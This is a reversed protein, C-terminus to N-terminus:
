APEKAPEPFPAREVVKVEFFEDHDMHPPRPYRYLDSREIYFGTGQTRADLDIQTLLREMEERASNSGKLLERTLAALEPGHVQEAARLRGQYTREHEREYAERLTPFDIRLAMARAEDLTWASGLKHSYRDRIYWGHNRGLYEITGRHEGDVRVGIRRHSAVGGLDIFTIVNM